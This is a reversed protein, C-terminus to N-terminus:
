LKSFFQRLCNIELQYLLLKQLLYLKSFQFKKPDHLKLISNLHEFSLNRSINPCWFIWETLKQPKQPGASILPLSKSSFLTTRNMKLCNQLLLCKFGCSMQYPGVQYCFIPPKTLPPPPPSQPPKQVGKTGGVWAACVCM